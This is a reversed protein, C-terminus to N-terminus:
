VSIAGSVGGDGSIGVGGAGGEDSGSEDGMRRHDRELKKL